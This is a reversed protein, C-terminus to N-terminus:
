TWNTASDVQRMNSEQLCIKGLTSYIFANLNNANFKSCGCVCVSLCRHPGVVHPLALHAQGRGLRVHAQLAALARALLHHPRARPGGSVRQRGDASRRPHLPLGDGPAPQGQLVLM